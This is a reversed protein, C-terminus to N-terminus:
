TRNCDGFPTEFPPCIVSIKHDSAKHCSFRPKNYVPWRKNFTRTLPTRYRKVIVQSIRCAVLFKGATTEVSVDKWFRKKLSATPKTAQPQRAAQSQQIMEAQRRRREVREGYQGAAPLPPAPAPGTGTIPLPNAFVSPSSHIRRTFCLCFSRTSPIVCSAVRPIIASPM